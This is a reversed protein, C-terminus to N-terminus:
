NILLQALFGENWFLPVASGNWSSPADGKLSLIKAKQERAIRPLQAPDALALDRYICDSTSSSSDAARSHKDKRPRCSLRVRAAPLKVLCIERGHDVGFVERSATTKTKDTFSLWLEAQETVPISAFSEEVIKRNERSRGDFAFTFASESDMHVVADALTKLREKHEQAFSGPSWGPTPEGVLDASLFVGRYKENLELNVKGAAAARADLLDSKIDAAKSSSGKTFKVIQWVTKRIAVAKCWVEAREKKARALRDTESPDSSLRALARIRLRPAEADVDIVGETEQM